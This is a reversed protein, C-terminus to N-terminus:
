FLNKCLCSVSCFDMIEWILNEDQDEVKKECTACKREYSWEKHPTLDKVRIEGLEWNLICKDPHQEKLKTLCEDSCLYHNGDDKM